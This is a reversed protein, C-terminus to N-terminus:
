KGKLNIYPVNKKTNMASFKLSSYILFRCSFFPFSCAFYSCSNENQCKLAKSSEDEGTYTNITHITTPNFLLPSTLLEILLAQLVICLFSPLSLMFPHSSHFSSFFHFPLRFFNYFKSNHWM